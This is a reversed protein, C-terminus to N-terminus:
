SYVPDTQGTAKGFLKLRGKEIEVSHLPLEHGIFQSDIM